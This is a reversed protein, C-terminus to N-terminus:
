PRGGTSTADHYGLLSHDRDLPVSALQALGVTLIRMDAPPGM